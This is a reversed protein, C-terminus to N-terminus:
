LKMAKPFLINNELHVHRHLDDEFDKLRQYTLMFTNCADPPVQYEKSLARIAHVAAGIEDHEHIVVALTERLAEVEKEDRAVGTKQLDSLRKITPFVVEEEEKLHLELDKAVKNFIQAIERVEPHNGGHVEAIKRTYGALTSTNEKLYSHHTNVIFDALFPLEWVGYNHSRDMPEVQAAEIERQLVKPDVGREKCAEGVPIKGGCCFDIGYKEFVAATRYDRAVIDGITETEINHLSEQERM